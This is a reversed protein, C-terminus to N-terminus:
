TGQVAGFATVLNTFTAATVTMSPLDGIVQGNIKVIKGGDLLYETRDSAKVIIIAM